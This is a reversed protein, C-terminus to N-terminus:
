RDRRWWGFHTTWDVGNTAKTCCMRKPRTDQNTRIGMVVCSTNLIGNTCRRGAPSTPSYFEFTLKMVEFAYSGLPDVVDVSANPTRLTQQRYLPVMSQVHVLPLHYFIPLEIRTQECIHTCIIARNNWIDEHWLQHLPGEVSQSRRGM